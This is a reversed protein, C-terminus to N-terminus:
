FEPMNIGSAEMPPPDATDWLIFTTGASGQHCGVEGGAQLM